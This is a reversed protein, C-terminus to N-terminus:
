PRLGRHAKETAHGGEDDSSTSSYSDGGPAHHDKKKHRVKALGEKMKHKIKQMPGTHQKGEKIDHLHKGEVVGAGAGCDQSGFSGQSSSGFSGGAAAGVGINEEVVHKETPALEGQVYEKLDGYGAGTGEVVTKYGSAEKTPAVVEEMLGQPTSTSTAGSHGAPLAGAYDHPLEDEKHTGSVLKGFLSAM